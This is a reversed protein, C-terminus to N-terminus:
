KKTGSIHDVVRIRSKPTLAQESYVVIQSKTNLGELVQVTGSLDAAGFKVSAFNLNGNKIEWVGSKGGLRKISANPVVLTSSQEPLMVTIEALEGVPPLTTLPKDFSIKASMEETIADAMPEIRTVHGELLRNTDSRLVVRAPLGTKLGKSNVQDFRANVWITKPDIMEVAAQGAVLTTGPDAKRISIIGDVPAILKLNQRQAILAEYDSRVRVYQQEAANLNAESLRYEHQKTTYNEESTSKAAFLQEYRRAQTKAYSQRTQADLRQAESQKLAAAQARIKDYLDVPDMEGIVQGAEVKDGVDVDIKLLRGAATPGIKYTRRSEVTGIGFIAPSIAKNEVQTVTVAISAMPGSRFLVYVFLLVFSIVGLLLLLMRKSINPKKLKM